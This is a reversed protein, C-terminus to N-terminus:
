PPLTAILSAAKEVRASFPPEQESSASQLLEALDHGHLQEKLRDQVASQIAPGLKDIISDVPSTANAGYSTPAPSGSAANLNPDLRTPSSSLRPVM